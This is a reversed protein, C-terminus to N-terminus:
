QRSEGSLPTEPLTVLYVHNVLEYPTRGSYDGIEVVTGGEDKVLRPIWENLEGYLLFQHHTKVFNSYPEIKATIPFGAAKMVDFGQFFNTGSYEISAAPDNLSYLRGLVASGEHHNMEFFTMGMGDVIPLDPRISAWPIEDVRPIKFDQRINHAFLGVLLLCATTIATRGPRLRVGLLLALGLYIAASTTICYRDFFGGHQRMMMLNLLVPNFLLCLLITIDEAHFRARPEAAEERVPWLLLALLAALLGKAVSTLAFNFFDWMKGVSARTEPPIVLGGYAQILPLYGLILVMPFVLAAWLAYDPTRRRWFRVGEALLFPWLSLPALVHGSLLLTTSIAVGAVAWRPRGEHVAVDWSFLLLSFSMFVLAYVRAETAYHFTASAWLLLVGFCAFADGVKRRMYLFLSLSGVYFELISPLRLGLATPGLLTMSLRSLLYAAPPNCDFHLVWQWLQQLSAARAIDFTFLEDFWVFRQSEFSIGVIYLVTLMAWILWPQSKSVALRGRVQNSAASQQDVMPLAM